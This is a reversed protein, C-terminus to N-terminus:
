VKSSLSHKTNKQTFTCQGSYQLIRDAKSCGILSSLVRTRAVGLAKRVRGPTGDSRHMPRPQRCSLLFKLSKLM